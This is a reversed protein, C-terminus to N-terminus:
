RCSRSRSSTLSSSRRPATTRSWPSPPSAASSSAVPPSARTSGPSSPPPGTVVRCRTYLSDGGGMQGIDMWCTLGSEELYQRVKVVEDQGHAVRRKPKDKDTTQRHGFARPAVQHDWQYSIFVQPEEREEEEERIVEIVDVREMEELCAVVMELSLPTNHSSGFWDNLLLVSPNLSDGFEEVRVEKYGLLAALARWDRGELGGDLLKAVSRLWPPAPPSYLPPGPPSAAPRPREWPFHQQVFTTEVRFYDCWLVPATLCDQGPASHCPAIGLLLPWLEASSLLLTHYHAATCLPSCCYGTHQAAGAGGPRPLPPLQPGPLRLAPPRRLGQM